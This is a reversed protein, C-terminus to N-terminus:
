IKENRSYANIIKKVVPHRVVDKSEFEIFGIESIGRLLEIADIMGSKKKRPLDVQTIDGTIILKGGNGLRTLFMKMQNCTSNQAEDLIVICNEFTRGRMYALPAIEILNQSTLKLYQESTVIQQIADFLPILYPNVKQIFDGPLFGLNEDAEVIPRTLIVKKTRKNLLENIAYAVSIFTKGTGAPGFTFVLDKSNLLKILLGQNVTRPNFVKKVKSVEINTNLIHKLDIDNNEEIERYLVDLLNAYINGNKQSISILVEITKEVIASNEGQIYIENGQSFVECGSISELRRLNKDNIGCIDLLTKENEIFIPNKM